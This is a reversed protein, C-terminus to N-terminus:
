SPRGSAPECIGRVTKTAVQILTLLLFGLALLYLIDVDQKVLVDDVVIQM